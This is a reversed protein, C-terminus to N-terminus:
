NVGTFDSPNLYRVFAGMAAAATPDTLLEQIAVRGLPGSARGFASSDRTAMLATTEARCDVTMLRTFLAAIKRDSEDKKGPRVSVVDAAQPSSAISTLTWRVVVLRDEGTSKAVMCKGLADALADTSAGGQAQVSGTTTLLAVSAAVIGSLAKM